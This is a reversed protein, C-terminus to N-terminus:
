LDLLTRLYARSIVASEVAPGRTEDQEVVIWGEYGRERLLAVLGPFDVVGRGLEMWADATTDKFHFYGVRDFVERALSVPDGGGRQVWAVDLCLSVLAPDTHVLLHRLERANAALEWFHNHYCLTLGADRALLGIRNLVEAQLTLEAATKHPEAAAPDKMKGSFPLYTAGVEAAFAIIRELNALAEAVARPNYIEGGVHLGVVRLGHTALLRRFAAPAQLDLHQAGIEFGEYGAGAIEALVGNLDTRNREPGWPRTQIGLHM